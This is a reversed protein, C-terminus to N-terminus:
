DKYFAMALKASLQMNGIKAGKTLKFWCFRFYVELLLTSFSGGRVALSINTIIQTKLLTLRLCDKSKDRKVALALELTM